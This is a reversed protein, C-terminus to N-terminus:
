TCTFHMSTTIFFSLCLRSILTGCLRMHTFIHDVKEFTDTDTGTIAIIFYKHCYCLLLWWARQLPELYGTLFEACQCTMSYETESWLSAQRKWDHIRRSWTDEDIHFGSSTTYDSMRSRHETTQILRNLTPMVWLIKKLNINTPVNSCLRIISNYLIESHRHPFDLFGLCCDQSRM